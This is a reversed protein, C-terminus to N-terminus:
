FFAPDTSAFFPPVSFSFSAFASKSKTSGCSAYRVSSQDISLVAAIGSTPKGSFDPAAPECSYGIPAVDNGVTELLPFVYTNWMRGPRFNESPEGSGAAAWERAHPRFRLGFIPEGYPTLSWNWFTTTPPSSKRAPFVWCMAPIWAFPRVSVNWRVFGFGVKTAYREMCHNPATLGFM